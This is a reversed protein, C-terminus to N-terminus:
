YKVSYFAVSCNLTTSCNHIYSLSHWDVVGDCTEWLQTPRSEMYWWKTVKEHLNVFMPRIPM